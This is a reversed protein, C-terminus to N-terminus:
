EAVSIRVLLPIPNEEGPLQFQVVFLKNPGPPIDQPIVLNIQTVGEVLDPAAGAYIVPVNTSGPFTPCSFITCGAASSVFYASQTGPVSALPTGPPVNAVGGDRTNGNLAGTGTIYVSVASGRPAPNLPQNVSFDQNLAASQSGVM